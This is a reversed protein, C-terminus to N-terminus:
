FHSGGEANDLNKQRYPIPYDEGEKYKTYYTYGNYGRVPVSRKMMRQEIRSVFKETLYIM